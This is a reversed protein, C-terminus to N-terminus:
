TDGLSCLSWLTGLSVLSLLSGLSVPLSELSVLSGLDFRTKCGGVFCDDLPRKNPLIFDGREIICGFSEKLSSIGFSFVFPFLDSEFFFLFDLSFEGDGIDDGYEADGVVGVVGTSLCNTIFLCDM